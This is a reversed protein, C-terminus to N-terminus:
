VGPGGGTPTAKEQLTTYALERPQHAAGFSSAYEQQTAVLGEYFSYAITDPYCYPAMDLGCEYFQSCTAATANAVVNIAAWIDTTPMGFKPGPVGPFPNYLSRARFIVEDEIYYPMAPIPKGYDVGYRAKFQEPTVLAWRALFKEAETQAPPPTPPVDGAGSLFKAKLEKVIGLIMDIKDPEVPM